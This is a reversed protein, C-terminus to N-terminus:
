YCKYTSVSGLIGTPLVVMALPLMAWICRNWSEPASLTLLEKIREYIETHLDSNPTVRRPTSCMLSAVAANSFLNNYLVVSSIQHTDNM